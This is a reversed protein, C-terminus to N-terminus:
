QYRMPFGPRLLNHGVCSDFNLVVFDSFCLVPKPKLERDRWDLM